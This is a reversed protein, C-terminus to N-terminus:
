IDSYYYTINGVYQPITKKSEPLDYSVGGPPDQTTSKMSVIYRWKIIRGQMPNPDGSEIGDNNIITQNQKIFKDIPVYKPAYRSKGGEYDFGAPNYTILKRYVIKSQKITAEPGLTKEQAAERVRKPQYNLLDATLEEPHEEYMNVKAIVVEVQTMECRFPFFVLGKLRIGTVKVNAGVRTGINTQLTQINNAATTLPMLQPGWVNIQNNAGNSQKYMGSRTIYNGGIDAEHDLVQGFRQTLAYHEAEANVVKSAVKRAIKVVTSVALKQQRHYARKRRRSKAYRRPM